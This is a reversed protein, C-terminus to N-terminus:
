SLPPKKAHDTERVRDNFKPRVAFVVIECAHFPRPSALYFRLQFATALLNLEGHLDDLPRVCLRKIVDKAQEPLGIFFRLCLKDPEIAPKKFDNSFLLGRKEDHEPFLAGAFHDCEHEAEIHALSQYIQ